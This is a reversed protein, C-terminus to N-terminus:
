DNDSDWETDADLRNESQAHRRGRKYSEFEETSNFKSSNAKPDDNWVSNRGKYYAKTEPTM